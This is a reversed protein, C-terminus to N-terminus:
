FYTLHSLHLVCVEEIKRDEGVGGRANHPINPTLPKIVHRPDIRIMNRMMLLMVVPCVM